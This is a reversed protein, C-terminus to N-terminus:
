AAEGKGQGPAADSPRLGLRKMKENLTTPRLGLSSAARRQNGQAALLAQEILERERALLRSRLDSGPEPGNPADTRAAM